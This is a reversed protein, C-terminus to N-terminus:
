LVALRRAFAQEIGGSLLQPQGSRWDKTVAPLVYVDNLLHEVMDM